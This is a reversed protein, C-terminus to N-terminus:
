VDISDITLSDREIKGFHLIRKTDRVDLIGSCLVSRDSVVRHEVVSLGVGKHIFIKKKHYKPTNELLETGRRDGISMNHRETYSRM